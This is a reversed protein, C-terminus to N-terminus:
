GLDGVRIPSISLSRVPSRSPYRAMRGSQPISPAGLALYSEDDNLFHEILIMFRGAGFLVLSVDEEAFQTPQEFFPLLIAIPM